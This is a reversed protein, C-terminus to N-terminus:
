DTDARCDVAAVLVASTLSPVLRGGNGHQGPVLERVRYAVPPGAEGWEVAYVLAPRGDTLRVRAGPAHGGHQGVLLADLWGKPGSWLVGPPDMYGRHNRVPVWATRWRDVLRDVVDRADIEQWTTLERDDNEVADAYTNLLPKVESWWVEPVKTMLRAAARDLPEMAADVAALDDTEVAARLRARDPLLEPQQDTLMAYVLALLWRDEWAHFSAWRAGQTKHRAGDARQALQEARGGPLEASRRVEWRAGGKVDAPRWSWCVTGPHGSGECGEPCPRSTLPAVVPPRPEQQEQDVAGALRRRAATYSIGERAALARAAHKAHKDDTM